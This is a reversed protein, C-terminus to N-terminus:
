VAYTFMAWRDFTDTFVELVIEKGWQNYLEEYNTLVSQLVQEDDYIKHEKRFGKYDFNNLKNEIEYTLKTTNM